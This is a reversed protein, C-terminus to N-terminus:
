TLTHKDPDRIILFYPTIEGERQWRELLGERKVSVYGLSSLYNRIVTIDADLGYVISSDGPQSGDEATFTFHYKESARPANRIDSDTYLFYAWLNARTYGEQREAIKQMSCDILLFGIIVLMIIAARRKLKKM